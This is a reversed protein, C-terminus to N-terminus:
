VNYICDNQSIVTSTLTCFSCLKDHIQPPLEWPFWVALWFLHHIINMGYTNHLHFVSHGCNYVWQGRNLYRVGYQHDIIKLITMQICSGIGFSKRGYKSGRVFFQFVFCHEKLHWQLPHVVPMNWHATGPPFRIYKWSFLRDRFAAWGSEPMGSRWFQRLECWVPLSCWNDNGWFFMQNGHMSVPFEALM